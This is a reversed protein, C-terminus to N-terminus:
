ESLSISGFEGGAARNLPPVARKRSRAKVHAIAYYELCTVHGMKRLQGPTLDSKRSVDICWAVFYFKRRNGLKSFPRKNQKYCYDGASYGYGRELANKFQKLRATVGGRSNSMGVYYVDNIQVRQGELRKSSYALLYVGPNRFGVNSHQDSHLPTWRSRFLEGVFCPMDIMGM